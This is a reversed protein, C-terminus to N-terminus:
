KSAPSVFKSITRSYKTDYWYKRAMESFKIM